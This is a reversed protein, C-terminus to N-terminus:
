KTSSCPHLRDPQQSFLELRTSLNEKSGQAFNEVLRGIRSEQTLPLQCRGARGVGGKPLFVLDSVHPAMLSEGRSGNARRSAVIKSRRLAIMSSCLGSLTAM